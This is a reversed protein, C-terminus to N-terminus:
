PLLTLGQLDHWAAVLRGVIRMTIGRRVDVGATVRQYGLAAFTPHVPANLPTPEPWADLAGCRPRPASRAAYWRM